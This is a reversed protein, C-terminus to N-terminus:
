PTPGIWNLTYNGCYNRPTEDPLSVFEACKDSTFRFDNLRYTTGGPETLQLCPHDAVTCPAAATKPKPAAPKSDIPLLEGIAIGVVAIGAVLFIRRKM